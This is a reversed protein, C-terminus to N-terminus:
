SSAHKNIEGDIIERGWQLGAELADPKNKYFPNELLRERALGDPSTIDIRVQWTNDSGPLHISVPRSKIDHWKYTEHLLDEDM